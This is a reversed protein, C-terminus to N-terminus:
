APGQPEEAPRRPTFSGRLLVAGSPDQFILGYPAGLHTPWQRLFFTVEKDLPVGRPSPKKTVGCLVLTYTRAGEDRTLTPRSLTVDASPVRIVARLTPGRAGVSFAASRVAIAVQQPEAGQALLSTSPRSRIALTM